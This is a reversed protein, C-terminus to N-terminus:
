RPVVHIWVTGVLLSGVIRWQIGVEIGVVPCRGGHVISILHFILSGITGLALVSASIRRLLRLHGLPRVVRAINEERLGSYTRLTSLPEACGASTTTTM